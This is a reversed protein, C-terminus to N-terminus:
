NLDSIDPLKYFFDWLSDAEPTESQYSEEYLTISGDPKLVYVDGIGNDAFVFGEINDEYSYCDTYTKIESFTYIIHNIVIKKDTNPNTMIEEIGNSVKLIDCLEKPLIKKANQYQSKTLPSRLRCNEGYKTKILDIIDM